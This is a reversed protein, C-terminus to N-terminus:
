HAMLVPVEAHALVHRTVGGLLQQRVRSHTYAGMVLMTGGADALGQLLIAGISGTTDPVPILRAEVGHRALAQALEPGHQVDGDPRPASFISVRSATWLLPMAGALARAGELSGNWAVVVHQLLNAPVRDRVLLCPRGTSFVGADFVRETEPVAADPHRVILLDALRGHREIIAELYGERECWSTPQVLGPQANRWGDYRARAKAARQRGEQELAEYTISYLAAAHAMAALEAAANPRIYLAEVTGNLRRALLLATALQPEPDVDAHMTTLINRISM